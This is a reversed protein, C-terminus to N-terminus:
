ESSYYLNTELTFTSSSSTLHSSDPSELPILTPAINFNEFSIFATALKLLLLEFDFSETYRIFFILNKLLNDRELISCNSLKHFYKQTFFTYSTAHHKNSFWDWFRKFNLTPKIPPYCSDCSQDPFQQQVESFPSKPFSIHYQDHHINFASHNKYSNM